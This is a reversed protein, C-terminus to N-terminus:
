EEREETFKLGNEEAKDEIYDCSEFDTDHTEECKFCYIMSM